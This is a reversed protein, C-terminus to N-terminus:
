GGASGPLTDERAGEPKEFAGQKPKVFEINTLRVEGIPDGFLGQEEGWRRFVWRTSLQVGDITRYSKYIVAHPEREAKEQPTGYTVIYAMAELLGSEPDAYIVYWDDPTDGVGSEFTLKGSRYREGNMTTMGFERMRTGPDDLKFPAALFYPWTLLHFRAGYPISADAPKIWAREGDFVMTMGDAGVMRVRNNHHDYLMTGEFLQNGGFDIDIDVRVARHDQWADGNHAKAVALALSRSEGRDPQTSPQTSQPGMADARGSTVGLAALAGLMIAILAIPLMGLLLRRSPHAASLSESSSCCRNM